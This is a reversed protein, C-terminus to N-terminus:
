LENQSKARETQGGPPLEGERQHEAQVLCGAERMKAKQLEGLAKVSKQVEGTQNQNQKECLGFFSSVFVTYLLEM